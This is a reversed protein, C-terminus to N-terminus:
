GGMCVVTVSVEDTWGTCVYVRMGRDGLRGMVEWYDDVSRDNWLGCVVYNTGDPM